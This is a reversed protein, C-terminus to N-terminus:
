FACSCCSPCDSVCPSRVCWPNPKPKGEADTADDGGGRLMFYLAVGLSGIIAVFALPAFYTM